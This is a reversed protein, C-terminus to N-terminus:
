RCEIEVEDDSPYATRYNVLDILVAEASSGDPNGAGTNDGGWDLIIDAPSAPWRSLRNWGLYDSTAPTVIRTRTDLDVGDVFIYRLMIYDADFIIEQQAGQWFGFNIM